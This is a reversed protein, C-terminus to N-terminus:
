KMKKFKKIKQNILKLKKNIAPIILIKYNNKIVYLIRNIHAKIYTEKLLVQIM